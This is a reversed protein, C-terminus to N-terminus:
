QESYYFNLILTDAPGSERQLSPSLVQRLRRGSGDAEGDAERKRPCVHRCTRGGQVMGSSVSNKGFLAVNECELITVQYFIAM